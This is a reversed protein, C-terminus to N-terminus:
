HAREITSDVSVLSLDVEGRTAAEAIMQEQLNQMVGTVTRARFRDYVTSWWGYQESVDRWPSYM